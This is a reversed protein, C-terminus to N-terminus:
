GANNDEEPIGKYLKWMEADSLKFVSQIKLWFQKDGDSHGSEIRWIYTRNSDIMRAFKASNLDLKSRLAKLNKNPIKNRKYQFKSPSINSM